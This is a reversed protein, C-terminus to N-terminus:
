SEAFFIKSHFFIYLVSIILFIFNNTKKNKIKRLYSIGQFSLLLMSLEDLWQGYWRQTAHLLFTGIGLIILTYGM